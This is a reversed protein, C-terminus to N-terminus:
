ASALSPPRADGVAPDIEGKRNPHGTGSTILSRLSGHIYRSWADSCVDYCEYAPGLGVHTFRVETKDGNRAIEFLIDTDQWETVDDVFNFYNDVVHWAVKTDPVLETIRITCRHVDQFHYEFEGLQDTRGEIEHSWWGRVNNIAAFAEAPTSDVLLTTTFNQNSKM